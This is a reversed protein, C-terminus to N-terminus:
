RSSVAPKVILTGSITVSKDDGVKILERSIASPFLTMQLQVSELVM